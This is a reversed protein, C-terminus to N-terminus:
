HSIRAHQSGRESELRLKMRLRTRINLITEFAFIYESLGESMQSFTDDEGRVMPIRGSLAALSFISLSGIIKSARFVSTRMSVESVRVSSAKIPRIFFDKHSM